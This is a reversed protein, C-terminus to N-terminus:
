HSTPIRPSHIRASIGGPSDDHAAESVVEGVVAVVAGLEGRAGLEVAGFSENLGARLFGVEIGGIDVADQAEEAVVWGLHRDDAGGLDGLPLM